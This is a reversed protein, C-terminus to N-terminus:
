LMVEENNLAIGDLLERWNVLEDLVTAEEDLTSGEPLEEEDLRPGTLLEELRVMVGEDDLACGELVKDDDNLLERTAEAAMLVDDTISVVVDEAAM